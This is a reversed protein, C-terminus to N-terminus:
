IAIDQILFCCQLRSSKTLRSFVVSMCAMYVGYGDSLFFFVYAILCSYITLMYTVARLNPLLKSGVKFMDRWVRAQSLLGFEIRVDTEQEMDAKFAELVELTLEVEEATADRPSTYKIDVVNLNPLKPIAKGLQKLPARERSAHDLPHQLGFQVVGVAKRQDAPARAMWGRLDDFDFFRFICVHRTFAAAEQYIQRCVRLLSLRHPLPDYLGSRENYYFNDVISKGGDSWTPRIINGALAFKWIRNRIEPPLQLLPSEGANRKM